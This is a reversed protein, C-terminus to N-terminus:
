ADLEKVWERLDALARAFVDDPDAGFWKYHRSPGLVYCDLELRYLTPALRDFYGPVTVSFRIDGEYGKCHGDEALSKAIGAYVTEKMEELWSEIPRSM